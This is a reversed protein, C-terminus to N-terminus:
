TPTIACSRHTPRQKSAACIRNYFWSIRSCSMSWLSLHLTPQMTKLGSQATHIMRDIWFQLLSTSYAPVGGQKPQALYCAQNGDPWRWCHYGGPLFWTNEHWSQWSKAAIPSWTKGIPDQGIHYICVRCMQLRSRTLKEEEGSTRELAVGCFLGFIAWSVIISLEYILWVLMLLWGRAGSNM